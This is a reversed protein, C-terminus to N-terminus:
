YYLKTNLIGQSFLLQLYSPPLEDPRVSFTKYKCLKNDFYVFTVLGLFTALLVLEKFATSCTPLFNVKIEVHEVHHGLCCDTIQNKNIQIHGLNYSVTSILYPCFMSVSLIVAIVALGIAVFIKIGSKSM